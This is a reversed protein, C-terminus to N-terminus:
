HFANPFLVYAMRTITISQTALLLAVFSVNHRKFGWFILWFLVSAARNM